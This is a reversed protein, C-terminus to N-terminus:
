PGKVVLPSSRDSLIVARSYRSAAEAPLLFHQGGGSSVTSMLGCIDLHLSEMPQRPKSTHDEFNKRRMKGEVCEECQKKRAVIGLEPCVKSVAKLKDVSPHRLALHWDTVVNLALGDCGICYDSLLYLKRNREAEL